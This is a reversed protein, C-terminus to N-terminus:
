ILNSWRENSQQKNQKPDNKNNKQEIKAKLIKNISFKAKHNKRTQFILEPQSQNIKELKKKIITKKWWETNHKNPISNRLKKQM